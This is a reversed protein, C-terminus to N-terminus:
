SRCAVRARIRMVLVSHGQSAAPLGHEAIRRTDDVARGGVVQRSPLPDLDSVPRLLLSMITTRDPLAQDAPMGRGAPHHDAESFREVLFADLEIGEVEVNEVTVPLEVCGFRFCEQRLENWTEVFGFDDVGMRPLRAIKQEGVVM